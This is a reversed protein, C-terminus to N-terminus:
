FIHFQYKKGVEVAAAEEKPDLLWVELLTLYKWVGWIADPLSLWLILRFMASERMFIKIVGSISSFPRWDNNGKWMGPYSSTVGRLPLLATGLRGLFLDNQQSLATQLVTLGLQRQSASGWFATTVTVTQLLFMSCSFLQWLLIHSSHCNWTEIVTSKLCASM